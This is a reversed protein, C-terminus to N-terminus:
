SNTAYQLINACVMYFKFLCLTKLVIDVYSYYIVHSALQLAQVITAVNANPTQPKVQLVKM